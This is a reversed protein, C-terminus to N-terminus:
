IPQMLFEFIRMMSHTIATGDVYCSPSNWKTVHYFGTERQGRLSLIGRRYAIFYNLMSFYTYLIVNIEWHKQIIWKYLFFTWEVHKPCPLLYRLNTQLSDINPAIDSSKWIFQLMYIRLKPKKPFGHWESIFNRLSYIKAIYM